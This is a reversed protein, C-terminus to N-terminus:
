LVTEIEAVEKRYMRRYFSIFVTVFIKRLKFRFSESNPAYWESNSHKQAKDMMWLELYWFFFLTEPVPDIETRLYSPFSVSVRNHGKSFALRLWQNLHPCPIWCLLHRGGRVQPRFCIWNGFRQAKWYTSNRVIPLAWFGLLKKDGNNKYSVPSFCLSNSQIEHQSNCAM